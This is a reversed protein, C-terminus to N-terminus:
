NENIALFIKNNEGFQTISVSVSDGVNLSMKKSRMEKQSIMGVIDKELKVLTVFPKVSLVEGIKNIGINNKCFEELEQRRISPDIDTLIIKKDAAIEQIWINVTDGAKFEGNKFRNKCEESMKSTHLLGTFFENFEIFIGFKMVGTVAGVYREQTDLEDIKQPLINKVYKKYSFVFTDSDQLYDEVMLPLKKGVMEDFDRVINTAALSGPLFGTVGQVDILFGGRNKELITGYYASTPKKIQAFFEDKTKLIQGKTISGRNHPKYQEIVIYYEQRIFDERGTPTSIYEIFTETSEFGLSYIFSKESNLDILCEIGGKLLVTLEKDFIFAIDTIKYANGVELEKNTITSKILEEYFGLAYDQHNYVTDKYKEFIQVNPIRKRRATDNDLVDWDFDNNKEDTIM